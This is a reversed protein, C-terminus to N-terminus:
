EEEALNRILESTVPVVGGPHVWVPIGNRTEIAPAKERTLGNRILESVIQGITKAKLRSLDRAAEMLDDDIELTTRM